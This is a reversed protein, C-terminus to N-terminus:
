NNRYTDYKESILKYATSFTEFEIDFRDMLFNLGEYCYIANQVFMPFKLITYPISNRELSSILITYIDMLQEEQDEVNSAMWFGGNGRGNRERSKAVQYFSRRPIYVYDFIIGSQLYTEIRTSYIPNKTIYAANMPLELGAKCQCIDLDLLCNCSFILNECELSSLGTPLGLESLVWILFSTGARGRGAIIVRNM